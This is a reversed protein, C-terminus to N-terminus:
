FPTQVPNHEESACNRPRLISSMEFPCNKITPAAEQKSNIPMGSTM